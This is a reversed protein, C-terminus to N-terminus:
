NKCSSAPPDASDSFVKLYYRGKSSEGQSLVTFCNNVSAWGCDGNIMEKHFNLQQRALLLAVVVLHEQQHYIMLRYNIKLAEM